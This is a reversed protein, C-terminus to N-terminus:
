EGTSTATEYRKRIESYRIVADLFEPHKEAVQKIKNRYDQLQSAIAAEMQTYQSTSNLYDKAHDSTADLQFRPTCLQRKIRTGTPARLDCSIEFRREDNFQNFIAYANAEAEWMQLRLQMKSREGIVLIEEPTQDEPSAEEQGDAFVVASLLIGFVILVGAARIDIITGECSMM